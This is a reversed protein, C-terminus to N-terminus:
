NGAWQTAAPVRHAFLKWPMAIVSRLGVSTAALGFTADRGRATVSKAPSVGVM